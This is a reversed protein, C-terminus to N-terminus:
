LPGLPGGSGSRGGLQGYYTSRAGGALSLDIAYGDAPQELRNTQIVYEISCEGHALLEQVVLGIELQSVVTVSM